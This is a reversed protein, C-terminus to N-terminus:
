KEKLCVNLYLDAHNSDAKHWKFGSDGFGTTKLYVDNRKFVGFARAYGSEARFGEPCEGSKLIGYTGAPWISHDHELYNNASELAKDITKQAEKGIKEDVKKSIQEPIQIYSTVGFFIAVAVVGVALGGKLFSLTIEIKLIREEIKM